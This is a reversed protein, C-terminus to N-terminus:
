FKMQKLKEKLIDYAEKPDNTHLCAKEMPCQDSKKWNLIFPVLKDYTFSIHHLLFCDYASQSILGAHVQTVGAFVMLLAAAKGIVNDAICAGQLMTYDKSLWGMMPRIGQANSSWIQGGKVAVCVVDNEKLYQKALKMDETM